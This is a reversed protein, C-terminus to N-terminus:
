QRFNQIKRRKVQLQSEIVTRNVKINLEQALLSLFNKVDKRKVDQHTKLLENKLTEGVQKLLTGITSAVSPINYLNTDSDLKALLCISKITSDTYKPDYVSAFDNIGKELAKIKLLFRGLLRLKSRIMEFFRPHKYRETMNNAFTIFLEDYSIVRTVEDQRLPPFVNQRVMDSAKKHIRSCIKKSSLLAFRRKLSSKGSCKSFHVRLTNKSFFAKCNSCPKFYRVNRNKVAQPRRSVILEGDNITEDTNFLFNGRKRLNGILERRLTNGKPLHIFQQVQEKDKHRLEFHRAIKKQKTLCFICFNWKKDGGRGRSNMVHMQSDDCMNRNTIPDSFRLNLEPSPFNQTSSEVTECTSDIYVNNSEEEEDSEDSPDPQYESCESYVESISDDMSSEKTDSNNNSYDHFNEYEDVNRPTIDTTQLSVFENDNHNSSDIEIFESGFSFNQLDIPGSELLHNDEKEKLINKESDVEIEDPVSVFKQPETNSKLFLLGLKKQLIELTEKNEVFLQLGVFSPRNDTRVSESELESITARLHIRRGAGRKSFIGAGTTHM